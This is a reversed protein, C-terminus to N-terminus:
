LSSEYEKIIQNPKWPSLTFCTGLSFAEAGAHEFDFVDQLCFIGGGGIVPKSSWSKINKVSRIASEKIYDGSVGGKKKHSYKEIPSITNPFVADWPITNIAHYADVFKETEKVFHENVQDLSLKLVLPHNCSNRLERVISVLEPNNVVNPCSVNVEVYALDLPNLSNGMLIAQYSTDPKVSASITYGMRKAEKYDRTIWQDIGGNTLGVANVLGKMGNKRILRICTWPSFTKYNGQIPQFTVTKAVVTFAKPNLLGLWRFPQEFWWGKGNFALAGSACAFILRHGNSFTIM